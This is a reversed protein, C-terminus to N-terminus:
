NKKTGSDVQITVGESLPKSLCGWDLTPNYALIIYQGSHADNVTMEFTPISQLEVTGPAVFWQELGDPKQYLTYQYGKESFDYSVRVQDGMTPMAESVETPRYIRCSRFAQIPKQPVAYQFTPEKVFVVPDSFGPSEEDHYALIEEVGYKPGEGIVYAAKRKGNTTHVVVEYYTDSMRIDQLLERIIAGPKNGTVILRLKDFSEGAWITYKCGDEQCCRPNLWSVFLPLDSKGSGYVLQLDQIQTCNPDSATVNITSIQQEDISFEYDEGNEAALEDQQQIGPTETEFYPETVIPEAQPPNARIWFSGIQLSTTSSPPAVFEIIQLTHIGRNLDQDDLELSFPIKTGPMLYIEDLTIDRYGPHVYKIIAYPSYDLCPSQSSLEITGSIINGQIEAVGSITCTEPIAIPENEITPESAEYNDHHAIPGPQNLEQIMVETSVLKVVPIDCNKGWALVQVQYLGPQLLCLAETRLAVGVAEQREGDSRLPSWSGYAQKTEVSFDWEKGQCNNCQILVAPRSQGQCYGTPDIRVSFDPNFCPIQKTSSKTAGSSSNTPALAEKQIPDDVIEPNEYLFGESLITANFKRSLGNPNRYDLGITYFHLPKLEKLLVRVQQRNGIQQLGEILKKNANGQLSTGMDQIWVSAELNPAKSHTFYFLLEAQGDQLTTLTVDFVPEERDFIEKLLENQAFSEQNFVIFLFLIGCLTTSAKGM